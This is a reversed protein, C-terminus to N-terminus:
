ILEAVIQLAIVADLSTILGDGDLDANADCLFAPLLGAHLQLMLTADISSLVGDCNADGQLGLVTTPTDTPTNTHTPTNTPTNTATLTATATPSSTATPTDSPTATATPSSTTTPTSTVTPTLSTTPTSTITPTSTVTSTPTPSPNPCEQVVTEGTINSSNVGTISVDRLADMGFFTCDFGVGDGDLDRILLDDQGMLTFDFGNSTIRVVIAAQCTIFVGNNPVDGDIIVAAGALDITIGNRIIVPLCGAGDEINIVGPSAISFVRAEFGISASIGNNVAEIAERLTCDGGITTDNPSGECDGDSTNGISNVYVRPINGASAEDGSHLLFAGLAALLLLGAAPLAFLLYRQPIRDM